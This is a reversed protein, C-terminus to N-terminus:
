RTPAPDATSPAAPTNPPPGAPAPSRLEALGSDRALMAAEVRNLRNLAEEATGGDKLCRRWITLCSAPSWPRAAQALWHRLPPPLADFARMPDNRRRRLRLRTSGRNGSRAPRM